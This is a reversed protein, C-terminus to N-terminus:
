NSKWTCAQLHGSRTPMSQRQLSYPQVSATRRAARERDTSETRSPRARRLSRHSVRLSALILLTTGAFASSVLNPGDRLARAAHCVLKWMSCGRRVSSILQIVACCARFARTLVLVGRMQLLSQFRRDVEPQRQFGDMQVGHLVRQRRLTLRASTLLPPAHQAMV